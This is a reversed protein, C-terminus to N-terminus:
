FLCSRRAKWRMMRKTKEEDGEKVNGDSRGNLADVFVRTEGTRERQARKDVRSFVECFM